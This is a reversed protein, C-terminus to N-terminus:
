HIRELSSKFSQLKSTERNSTVADLFVSAISSVDQARCGSNYVDLSYLFDKCEVINAPLTSSTHGDKAARLCAMSLSNASYKLQECCGSTDLLCQLRATTAHMPHRVIHSLSVQPVQRTTQERQLAAYLNGYPMEPQERASAPSTCSTNQASTSSAASATSQWITHHGPVEPKLPGMDDLSLTALPFARGPGQRSGARSSTNARSAGVSSSGGSSGARSGGGGSSGLSGQSATSADLPRGRDRSSGDNGGARSSGNSSSARNSGDSGARSGVNRGGARSGGDNGAAMATPQWRQRGGISSGARNGGGGSSGFSGQSAFSAAPPDGDIGDRKSNSNSTPAASNTNSATSSSNSAGPALSQPPATRDKATPLGRDDMSAQKVWDNTGNHEAWHARDWDGTLFLCRDESMTPLSDASLLCCWMTSRM